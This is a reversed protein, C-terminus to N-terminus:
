NIDLDYLCKTEIFAIYVPLIYNGSFTISIFLSLLVFIFFYLQIFSNFKRSFFYKLCKYIFYLGFLGCTTIIFNFLNKNDLGYLSNSFNSIESIDINSGLILSLKNKNDILSQYIVDQHVGYGSGFPYYILNILSSISDLFRTSFTVSDNSSSIKLLIKPVLIFLVLPFILIFSFIILINRNKKGYLFFIVLFLLVLSLVASFYYGKSNSIITYTIIFLFCIITSLRSRVVDLSYYLAISFIIPVYFGSVSAESALLRIRYYPVPIVGHLMSFSNPLYYFDIILIIFETILAFIVGIFLCIQNFKIFIYKAHRYTSYLMLITFTYSLFKIFYSSGHFSDSNKFVMFILIYIFSIIVSYIIIFILYVDIKSFIIKKKKFFIYLEILLYFPAIFVIPCQALAGLKAGLIFDNYCLLIFLIYIYIIQLVYQLKIKLM